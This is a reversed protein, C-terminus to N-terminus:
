KELEKLLEGITTIIGNEFVDVGFEDELKVTLLALDLSTLGIDQFKVGDSLDLNEINGSKDKLIELIIIKIKDKM